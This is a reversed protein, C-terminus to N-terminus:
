QAAQEYEAIRAVKPGSRSNPDFTHALYESLLAKALEPGQVQSGFTVINANNSLAARQAQYVNGINAAYAGRVKNAAIAVGIGTGCVLVGRDFTGAAVATAVAIAVNAYIPDASDYETVEHGLRVLHDKLIDKLDFANPDCGIAIRM